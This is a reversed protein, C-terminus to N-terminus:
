MRVIGTRQLSNDGLDTTPDIRDSAKPSLRNKSELDSWLAVTKLRSYHGASKARVPLQFTLIGWM